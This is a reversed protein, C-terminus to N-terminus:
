FENTMSEKIFNIMHGLTEHKPKSARLGYQKLRSETVHGIAIFHISKLEEPTFHGMLSDVASPSSLTLYDIRDINERIQEISGDHVKPYYLDIETVAAGSKRMYDRMLPRKKTSAPYLIKDGPNITCEEIFGEQTYTSPEFDVVIGYKNLEETTKVGISSIKETKVHKFFPLFHKVTNKSTMVLWTYQTNLLTEDFSLGETTILPAHVLNLFEDEGEEFTSQTIYVVPKNTQM